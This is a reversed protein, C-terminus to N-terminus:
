ARQTFTLFSSSSGKDEKLMAKPLRYPGLYLESASRLTQKPVLDLEQSSPVRLYLHKWSAVLGWKSAQTEVAPGGYM